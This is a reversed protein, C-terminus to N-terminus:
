LIKLITGGWSLGVGFGALLVTLPRKNWTRMYEHLAIPITSSVTNGTKAMFLFFKDEPIEMKKRIYSLMYQNAQHFIYSDINEPTLNNAALTKEVLEPVVTATFKFIANGNMFLNDDNKQFLDEAYVDTGQKYRNRGAGNRVILQEWGSGDTGFTFNGIEAFGTASILSATAADGFITRNAKDKPNIFKSYTESTVLLVNRATGSVILARAMSLGYVYGSCGLNFDLAGTDKSLGLRDQVICATTPLFYDPSQTCLMLFDITTPDIAHEKFLKLSASVAMDGVTERLGAIRREYIGTKSSIKDVSWEPFERNIEENSLITEPLYYSIAKIFAAKM